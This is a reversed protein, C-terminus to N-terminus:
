WTGLNRGVEDGVAKPAGHLPAPRMLARLTSSQLVPRGERTGYTPRPPELRPPTSARPPAAATRPAVVFRADFRRHDAPRARPAVLRGHLRAQERAHM